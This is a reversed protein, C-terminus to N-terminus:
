GDAVFFDVPYALLCMPFSVLGSVGFAQGGPFRPGFGHTALFGQAQRLSQLFKFLADHFEILDNGVVQQGQADFDSALNNPLGNGHVANSPCIM